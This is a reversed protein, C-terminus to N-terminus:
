HSGRTRQDYIADALAYTGTFTHRAGTGGGVGTFDDRVTRDADPGVQVYAKEHRIQVGLQGQRWTLWNKVQSIRLFQCGTRM